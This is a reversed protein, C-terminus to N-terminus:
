ERDPDTRLLTVGLEIVLYIGTLQASVVLTRGFLLM